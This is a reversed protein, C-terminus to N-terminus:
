FISLIILNDLKKSFNEETIGSWFDSPNITSEQYAKKYDEKTKLNYISM